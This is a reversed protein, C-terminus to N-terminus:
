LSLKTKLYHHLQKKKGLLVLNILNENDVAFKWKDM